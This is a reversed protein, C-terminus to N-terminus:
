VNPVGRLGISNPPVIGSRAARANQYHREWLASLEKGAEWYTLVHEANIVIPKDLNKQDFCWPIMNMQATGASQQVLLLGPFVLPFDGELALMGDIPPLEAPTPARGVVDQGNSM